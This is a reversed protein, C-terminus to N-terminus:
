TSSPFFLSAYLSIFTIFCILRKGKLHAITSVAFCMAQHHPYDEDRHKPGCYFILNCFNCPSRGFRLDKKCTHCASPLFVSRFSYKYIYEEDDNIVSSVTEIVTKDKLFRRNNETQSEKSQKKVEIPVSDKIKVKAQKTNATKNKEKKYDARNLRAPIDPHGLLNKPQSVPNIQENGDKKEDDETPAEINIDPNNQIYSSNVENAIMEFTKNVDETTDNSTLADEFNEIPEFEGSVLNALELDQARTTDDEVAFSLQQKGKEEKSVPKQESKEEKKTDETKTEKTEGSTASTRSETTSQTSAVHEVEQKGKKRKNKGKNDKRPPPPPTSINIPVNDVPKQQREPVIEEKIPVPLSEIKTGTTTLDAEILEKSQDLETFPKQEEFKSVKTQQEALQTVELESKPILNSDAEKTATEEKSTSIEQKLALNRIADIKAQAQEFKKETKEESKEMATLEALSSEISRRLEEMDTNVEMVKSKLDTKEEPNSKTDVETITIGSSSIGPLPSEGFGEIFPTDPSIGPLPSESSGEIFPTDPIVVPINLKDEDVSTAERIVMNNNNDLSTARPHHVAPVIGYISGDPEELKVSSSGIDELPPLDLCENAEYVNDTSHKEIEATKQKEKPELKEPNLDIKKPKPSKKRKKSSGSQPLPMQEFKSVETQVQTDKIEMPIDFIDVPEASKSHSPLEKVFTLPIPTDEKKIPEQKQESIDSLINDDVKEQSDIRPQSVPALISGLVNEIPKQEEVQNVDQKSDKNIVPLSQIQHLNQTSPTEILALTIPPQSIDLKTQLVTEESKNVKDESEEISDEKPIIDDFECTIDLSTHLMVKTPKPSKKRKKRKDQPVQMKESQQINDTKSEQSEINMDIEIKIEERPPELLQVTNKQSETIEINSETVTDVTKTVIEEDKKQMVGIIHSVEEVCQNDAMGKLKKDVPKAIKAKPKPSKETQIQSPQIASKDEEIPKTETVKATEIQQMKTDIPIDAGDIHKEKTIESIVEKNQAPLTNEKDILIGEKLACVEPKNERNEVIEVVELNDVFTEFKPQDQVETEYKPPIKKDKKNKKKSKGEEKFSENLTDLTDGLACLGEKGESHKITHEQQELIPVTDQPIPLKIDVKEDKKTSNKEDKPELLKQFATTCSLLEDGKDSKESDLRKKKKNKKKSKCEETGDTAVPVLNIIKLDPMFEEKSIPVINLIQEDKNESQKEAQKKNKNKKKRAVPTVPIEPTKSTTEDTSEDKHTKSGPGTSPEASIDRSVEDGKDGKKKKGRNRKPKKPTDDEAVKVEVPTIVESKIEPVREESKIVIEAEELNKDKIEIDVPTDDKQPPNPTPPKGSKNKNRKKANM